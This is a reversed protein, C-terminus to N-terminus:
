VSVYKNDNNERIKYLGKELYINYYYTNFPSKIIIKVNHFM